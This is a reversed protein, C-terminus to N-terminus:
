CFILFCLSIPTQKRAATVQMTLASIAPYHYTDQVYCTLYLMHRRCCSQEEAMCQSLILIWADLFSTDRVVESM